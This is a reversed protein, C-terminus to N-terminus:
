AVSLLIETLERPMTLMMDHGTPLETVRWAPSQRLQDAIADFVGPIGRGAALVYTRGFASAELPSTLRMPETLAGLPQPRMQRRLWALDAADTVDFDGLPPPPVPVRWDPVDFLAAAAPGVMEVTSQGDNPVFADLYVLEGLREPAQQAVGTIVMGGYSHGVLVVDTLEEFELLKVIDTVHTSLDIDASGLHEREGVGTLTPTFVEHGAARLLPAVRKWCWGGHWAGHVLVYTAM